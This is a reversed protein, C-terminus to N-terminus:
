FLELSLYQAAIEGIDIVGDENIEDDYDTASDFDVPTKTSSNDLLLTTFDGVIKEPALQLESLAASAKGATIIAEISGEVVITLEDQRTLTVNAAFYSIEPVDFREALAAREGEKALLKCLVPRRSVQGVNLCRSFEPTLPPPANKKKAAMLIMSSMRSTPSALSTMEKGLTSSYEVSNSRSTTSIWRPRHDNKLPSLYGACDKCLLLLLFYHLLPFHSLMERM